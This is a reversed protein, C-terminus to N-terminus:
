KPEIDKYGMKVTGPTDIYEKVKAFLEEKLEAMRSEVRKEVEAEIPDEKGDLDYIKRRVDENNLHLYKSPTTSTDSWGAFIKMQTETM